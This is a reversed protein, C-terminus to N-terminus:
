TMYIAVRRATSPQDLEKATLASNDLKRNAPVYLGMEVPANEIHLSSGALDLGRYMDVILFTGTPGPDSWDVDDEGM